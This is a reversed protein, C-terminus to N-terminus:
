FEDPGSVQLLDDFQKLSKNLRNAVSNWAAYVSTNDSLIQPKHTVPRDNYYTGTINFLSGIGDTYDMDPIILKVSPQLKSTKYTRKNRDM